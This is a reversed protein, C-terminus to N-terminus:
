SGAGARRAIAAATSEAIGAGDLGFSALLQDPPGQPLYSTPIGAVHVLPPSPDRALAAAVASGAGGAALGDEVTVVVPHRGAEELMAPDLPAVSRVDWVSVEIGRGALIEAADGCATLLKGVGLLCAHRGHRLKRAALGHGVDDTGSVTPTKPWRIAVPGEVHDLAYGLMAVLEGASSPALVTMGPVKTLLVLDFLGHHSPGDEGTVGARDICLVVPLHHLGVDYLIQDWARNLFTAYIAVVPRLGAMAMGAAATLAHQEAIGVDFFREPYRRAFPLLGTSGPMAATVAVLDPHRVAEAVMAEGFAATFGRRGTGVGTGVPSPGVRPDFPSVDHLCKEADAEAPAYGRGKRTHVHVVVPAQSEALKFAEEMAAIDHGDVPGVYAIGLGAFFEAPASKGPRRSATTLPSVTPAYSRGNDNLVVIVPAGSVAINNLAEFAMGGTLTGDGVVAVIRRDVGSLRQAQAIGCAYSMATSAHSNEIVDHESERANPYGSLGGAERLRTFGSARGTVIKHVYAQHGTDWLIWDKPSDFTRHLALTLEVAGLNSGLHGGHAAVSAVLHSRIDAALVALEDTSM